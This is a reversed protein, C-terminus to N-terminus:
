KLVEPLKIGMKYFNIYGNVPAIKMAEETSMDLDEACDQDPYVILCDIIKDYPVNLMDYVKKMRAYGCVQRIDEKDINRNSYRPKYKADIVFPPIKASHPKLTYDLEQFMATPHYQIENRSFIKRMKGYVYLEFLKSMDIWFPPTAITDKGQVNLNYGFRHLILQALRLGERYNSFLPSIHYHKLNSISIDNSVNKFAPILHAILKEQASIDVATKYELLIRSSLVLAKKLIRNEETDIGFEQYRCYNDAKSGGNIINRITPKLLVKGKVTSHLNDEVTYYSKKLGGRVISNVVNLFESILFITLFDSQKPVQIFPKDFDIYLLDELFKMDDLNQLADHLMRIVDIEKSDVNMKPLVRIAVKGEIIWSLGIFYSTSISLVGDKSTLAYCTEEESKRLFTSSYVGDRETLIKLDEEPVSTLQGSQQEYTDIM